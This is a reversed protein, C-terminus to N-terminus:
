DLAMLQGQPSIEFRRLDLLGPTEAMAQNADRVLLETTVTLPLFQSAAVSIGRLEIRDGLFVSSLHTVTGSEAKLGFLGLYWFSGSGQNTVVFPAVMLQAGALRANTMQLDRYGLLVQGRVPGDSYDGSVWPLPTEVFTSLRAVAESEPVWLTFGALTKISFLRLMVPDAQALSIDKPPETSKCGVLAISLVATLLASLVLRM